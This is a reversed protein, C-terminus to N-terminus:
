GSSRDLTGAHTLPSLDFVTIYSPTGGRLPGLSTPCFIADCRQNRADAPLDRLYHRLHSAAAGARGLMRKAGVDLESTGNLHSRGTVLEIAPRAALAARLGRVFTGTGAPNAALFDDYLVGM